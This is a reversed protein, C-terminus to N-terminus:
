GIIGALKGYLISLIMLTLFLEPWFLKRLSVFYYSLLITLPVVFVAIHFVNFRGMYLITMFSIIIFFLSISLRKRVNIITESTRWSVNVFSVLALMLITSGYLYQSIGQPLSLKQLDIYYHLYRSAFLDIRDTLFYLAAIILYPILIGTVTILISRMDIIRFILLSAWLLLIFILVPQYFLSAMAIMFSANFIGPIPETLNYLGFITRISLIIFLNAILVPHITLLEPIFSMLVIYLLAPLFNNRPIVKYIILTNNLLLAESIVLLFGLLAIIFPPFGSFFNCLILYVPASFGENVIPQPLIFGDM